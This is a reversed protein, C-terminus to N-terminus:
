HSLEVARYYLFDNAPFSSITKRMEFHDTQRGSILHGCHIAGRLVDYAPNAEDIDIDVFRVEPSIGRGEKPAAGIVQLSGTPLTERYSKLDYDQDSFKMRRLLRRHTEHVTADRQLFKNDNLKGDSVIPFFEPDVKAYVRNNEVVEIRQVNASLPKRISPVVRLKALINMLCAKRRDRHLVEPGLWESAALGDLTSEDLIRRTHDDFRGFTESLEFRYEPPEEELTLRAAGGARISIRQGSARKLRLGGVRLGFEYIGAPLADKAIGAIRLDGDAISVKLKMAGGRPWGRRRAVSAVMAATAGPVPSLKIQFGRPLASTEGGLVIGGQQPDPDLETVPVSEGNRKFSILIQEHM